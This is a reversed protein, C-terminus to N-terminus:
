VQCVTNEFESAITQDNDLKGDSATDRAGAPAIQSSTGGIARLDLLRSSFSGTLSRIYMSELVVAHISGAPYVDAVALEDVLNRELNWRGPGANGPKGFETEWPSVVTPGCHMLAFHTWHDTSITCSLILNRFQKTWSGPRLWYEDPSGLICDGTYPRIKSTDFKHVSMLRQKSDRTSRANRSMNDTLLTGLNVIVDTLKGLTSALQDVHVSSGSVEPVSQQVPVSITSLSSRFPILHLVSVGEDFYLGTNLNM